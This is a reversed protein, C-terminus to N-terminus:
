CYGQYSLWYTGECKNAFKVGEDEETVGSCQYPATLLFVIMGLTYVEM